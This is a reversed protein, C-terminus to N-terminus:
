TKATDSLDFRLGHNRFLTIFEALADTYVDSCSPLLGFLPDDVYSPTISHPYKARFDKLIWAITL